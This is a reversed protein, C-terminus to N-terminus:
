EETTGSSDASLRSTWLAEGLHRELDESTRLEVAAELERGRKEASRVIQEAQARAKKLTVEAEHRAEQTVTEVLRDLAERPDRTQQLEGKLITLQEVLVRERLEVRGVRALLEVREDEHRQEELRARLLEDGVRELEVEQQEHKRALERIERELDSVQRERATLDRLVVNAEQEVRLKHEHQEARLQEITENLRNREATLADCRQTLRAILEDAQGRDYGRFRRKLPPAV